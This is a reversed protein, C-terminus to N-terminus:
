QVAELIEAETKPSKKVKHAKDGAMVVFAPLGVKKAEALPIKCQEPTEYGDTSNQEFGFAKFDSTANAPMKDRNLRNLGVKVGPPVEGQDKEYVYVAATLKSGPLAIAPGYVQWYIAFAILLLGALQRPRLTITM